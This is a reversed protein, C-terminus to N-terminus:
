GVVVKDLLGQSPLHNCFNEIYEIYNCSVNIWNLAAIYTSFVEIDMSFVRSVNKILIAAVVQNPTNTLIAIKRYCLYKNETKIYNKLLKIECASLWFNADKVVMLLNYNPDFQKDKLENEKLTVLDSYKINGCYVEIVLKLQPIHKYQLM